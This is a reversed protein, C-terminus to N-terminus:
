MMKGGEDLHTEYGKAADMLAASNFHLYNTEIFRSIPGREVAM